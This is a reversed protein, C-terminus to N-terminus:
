DLLNEMSKMGIALTSGNHLLASMTPPIIGAVGLVILGANFSVIFRYNKDIRKVLSNSLAKLTVIEYLNDAGITVDAIERAIEAGDSISVGIDAASLAPSDNIGDGIMIVKRGKAKEKEVFNAKDEPLVESYYEDIGAKKAIAKATRDSDGTMMVVKGIGAMKLSQIVAAAEERLPDEICIVAALRNNIAMYLHSYEPPLSNFTDMKEPDVTCKEDEFVFHHSGIVVKQGDIM